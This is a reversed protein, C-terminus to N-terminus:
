GRRASVSCGRTAALTTSARRHRQGLVSTSSISGSGASARDEIVLVIREDYPRAQSGTERGGLQHALQDLRAALLTRRQDEVRLREARKSRHVAPPVTCPPRGDQGGMGPLEAPHAGPATDRRIRVTVQDVIIGRPDSSGPVRRRGPALDHHEFAGPRNDGRRRRSRRRATRFGVRAEPPVTSTRAPAMPASSACPRAGNAARPERRGARYRRSHTRSRNPSAPEDRGIQRVTQGDGATAQRGDRFPLRAALAEAEADRARATTRVRGRLRGLVPRRSPTITGGGVRDRRHGADSRRRPVSAPAASWGERQHGPQDPDRHVSRCDRGRRASAPPTGKWGDDLGVGVAM